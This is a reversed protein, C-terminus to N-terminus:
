AREKSKKAKFISLGDKLVQNGGPLFFVVVRYLLLISLMIGLTYHYDWIENRVIKALEYASEKTIPIDYKQAFDLIIDRIKFKELWNKRAFVTFLILIVVVANLWHYLRLFLTYDTKEKNM